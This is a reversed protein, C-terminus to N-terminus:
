PERNKLTMFRMFTVDAKKAMDTYEERLERLIESQDLWHEKLDRLLSERNPLYKM